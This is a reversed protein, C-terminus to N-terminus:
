KGPTITKTQAEAKKKMAFVAFRPIGSAAPKTLDVAFHYYDFFIQETPRM